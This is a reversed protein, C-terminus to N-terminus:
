APRLKVRGFEAIPVPLGWVGVQADGEISMAAAGPLREALRAAVATAEQESDCAEYLSAEVGSGATSFGQAYFFLRPAM